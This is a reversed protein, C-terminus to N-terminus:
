LSPTIEPKKELKPISLLKNIIQICRQIALSMDELDQNVSKNKVQIQLTQLLLLIGAIPNNLEHAISSSIIGMEASKASEAIQYELKIQETIDRLIIMQIETGQNQSIKQVSIEFIYKKDNKYVEERRKYYSNALSETPAPRGFFVEFYNKQMLETKSMYTKKRFNKNTRLIKGEQNTLCIPSAITDFALEWQEKKIRLEQEKHRRILASELIKGIAKLKRKEEKSLGQKKHFRISYTQDKHKFSHLCLYKSNKIWISGSQLEMSDVGCIRVLEKKLLAQLDKELHPRYTTILAEKLSLLQEKEKILETIDKNKKM